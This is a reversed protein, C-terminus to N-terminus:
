LERGLRACIEFSTLPSSLLCVGRNKASEIVSEPVAVEEAIVVCAAETLEAVAVVNEHSQITIWAQEPGVRSIVFSLLDCVYGGQILPEELAPTLETAEILLIFNKLTM